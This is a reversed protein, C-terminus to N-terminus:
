TTTSALQLIHDNAAQLYVRLKKTGPIVLAAVSHSESQSPSSKTLATLDEDSWNSNNYLFQHVHGDAQSVFYLYSYNGINFGAMGRSCLGLTGGTIDTLDQDQWNTGNTNFIQHIHQTAYGHLLHAIGPNDHFCGCQRGM